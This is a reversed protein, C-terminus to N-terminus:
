TDSRMRKKALREFSESLDGKLRIGWMESGRVYQSLRALPSENGQVFKSLTTCPGERTLGFMMDDMSVCHPLVFTQFFRNKEDRECLTKLFTHDDDNFFDAVIKTEGLSPNQQFAELILAKVPVLIDDFYLELSKL